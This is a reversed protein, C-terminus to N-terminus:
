PDSSGMIGRGSHSAHQHPGEGAEEGPLEEVDARAGPHKAPPHAPLGGPWKAGLRPSGDHGFAGPDRRGARRGAGVGTGAGVPDEEDPGRRGEDLGRAEGDEGIGVEQVAALPGVDAHAQGGPPQGLRGQGDALQRREVEHDQRMVVSVVEVPERSAVEVVAQRDHGFRVRGALEAALTEARRDRQRGPLGV